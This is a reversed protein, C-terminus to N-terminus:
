LICLQAMNDVVNIMIQTKKRVLKYGYSSRGDPNFNNTPNRHSMSKSPVGPLEVLTKISHTIVCSFNLNLM